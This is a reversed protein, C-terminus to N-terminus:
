PGSSQFAAMSGSTRAGAGAILATATRAGAIPSTKPNTVALAPCLGLLQVLVPNERWVGRLFVEQPTTTRRSM